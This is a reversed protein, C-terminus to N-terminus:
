SPSATPPHHARNRHPRSRRATNRSRRHNAFKTGARPRRRTRQPCKADIKLVAYFHASMYNPYKTYSSAGYIVHQRMAGTLKVFSKAISRPIHRATCLFHSLREHSRTTKKYTRREERTRAKWFKEDTNPLLAQGPKRKYLYAYWIHMPSGPEDASGLLTYQAESNPVTQQAKWFCVNVTLYPVRDRLDDVVYHTNAAVYTPLSMSMASTYEDLWKKTLPLGPPSVIFWCEPIMQSWAAKYMQMRNDNLDCVNDVRYLFVSSADVWIGGKHYMLYLRLWDSIKAYNREKEFPKMIQTPYDKWARISDLTHLTVTYDPHLTKMRTVCCQLFVRLRRGTRRRPTTSQHELAEHWFCHIHKPITTAMAHLPPYAPTANCHSSFFRVSGFMLTRGAGRAQASARVM